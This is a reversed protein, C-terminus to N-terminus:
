AAFIDALSKSDFDWWQAPQEDTVAFQKGLFRCRLGRGHVERIAATYGDAVAKHTFAALVLPFDDLPWIDRWYPNRAEREYREVKDRARNRHDENHYEILFARKATHAKTFILLADPELVCKRKGSESGFVRAEYKGYWTSTYGQAKGYHILNLAVQNCLVDHTLQHTGYGLYVPVFREQLEMIAHGIAGLTYLRLHTTAAKPFPIAQLSPPAMLHDLLHQRHYRKLSRVSVNTLSQLQRTTLVGTSALVNMTQFALPSLTNNKLLRAATVKAEKESIPLRQSPTGTHNHHSVEILSIPM